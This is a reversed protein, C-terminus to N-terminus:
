VYIYNYIFIYNYLSVERYSPKKKMSNSIEIGHCLLWWRLRPLTASELPEELTAGPIDNESLEIEAIMKGSLPLKYELLFYFTAKRKELFWCCHYGVKVGNSLM